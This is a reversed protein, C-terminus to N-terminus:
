SGPRGVAACYWEFFRTVGDEVSVKPEDDLLKRAKCIDAYNNSVDPWSESREREATSLQARVVRRPSSPLTYQLCSHANTKAVPAPKEAQLPL